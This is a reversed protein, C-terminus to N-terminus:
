TRRCWASTRFSREVTSVSATHGWQAIVSFCALGCVAPNKTGVSKPYPSGCSKVRLCGSPSEVQGHNRSFAIWVTSDDNKSILMSRCLMEAFSQWTQSSKWHWVHVIKHYMAIHLFPGHGCDTPKLMSPHMSVLLGRLFSLHADQTSSFFVHEVPLM